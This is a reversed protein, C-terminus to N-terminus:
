RADSVPANEKDQVHRRPRQTHKPRAQSKRWTELRDQYAAQDEGPRAILHYLQSARALSAARFRADYSADSEGRRREITPEPVLLTLLGQITRRLRIQYVADPEPQKDLLSTVHREAVAAQARNYARIRAQHSAESEGDRREIPTKGSAAAIRARESARIRAQYSAESEGSRREIQIQPAQASLVGRMALVTFLLLAQFKFCAKPAVSMTTRGDLRMSIIVTEGERPMQRKQFGTASLTGLFKSFHLDGYDRSRLTDAM